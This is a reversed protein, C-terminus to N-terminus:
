GSHYSISDYTMNKTLNMINHVFRSTANGKGLIQGGSGAMSGSDDCIFYRMGMKEVNKVLCDVLGEPWSFSRLYNRIAPVNPGEPPASPLVLAPGEEPHYGAQVAYAEVM